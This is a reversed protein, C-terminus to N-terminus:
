SKPPMIVALSGFGFYKWFSAWFPECYRASGTAARDEICLRFPSLCNLNYPQPRSTKNYTLGCLCLPNHESSSQAKLPSSTNASGGSAPPSAFPGLAYAKSERTVQSSRINLVFWLPVMLARAMLSLWLVCVYVQRMAKALLLVPSRCEERSQKGNGRLLWSWSVCPQSM